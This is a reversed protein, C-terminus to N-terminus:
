GTDSRRKRKLDMEGPTDLALTDINQITQGTVDWAHAVIRTTPSINRGTGRIYNHLQFVLQKEM